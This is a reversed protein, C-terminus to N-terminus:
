SRPSSFCSPEFVSLRCMNGTFGPMWFIVPSETRTVSPAPAKLAYGRKDRKREKKKKRRSEEEKEKRRERLLDGSEWYSKSIARTREFHMGKKKIEREGGEGKKEKNRGRDGGEGEKKSKGERGPMWFIVPSKTLTVSPAPENERERKRARDRGRNM